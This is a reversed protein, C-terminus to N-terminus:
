IFFAICKGGGGRLNKIFYFLSVTVMLSLFLDVTCPVIVPLGEKRVGVWNDFESFAGDSLYQCAFSCVCWFWWFSLRCSHCLIRMIWGHCYFVTNGAVCPAGAPCMTPLHHVFVLLSSPRHWLCLSPSLHLNLIPFPALHALPVPFFTKVSRQGKCAPKYTFIAKKGIQQAITSTKYWEIFDRCLSHWNDIDYLPLLIAEYLCAHEYSPYKYGKLHFLLVNWREPKQHFQVILCDGNLEFVPWCLFLNVTCPVIVPLGEKRVGVWNDFVSFAGESLTSMCIFVCRLVTLIVAWLWSVIDRSENDMQLLLICYKWTCLSSRRSMTPLHHVSILLSSSPPHWLCLCPSLHM